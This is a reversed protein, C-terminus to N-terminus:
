EEDKLRIEKIKGKIVLENKAFYSCYLNNGAIIVTKQRDTLVVEEDKLTMVCQYDQVVVEQDGIFLQMQM